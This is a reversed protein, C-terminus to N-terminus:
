LPRGFHWQPVRPDCLQFGHLKEEGLWNHQMEPYHKNNKKPKIMMMLRKLYMKLSQSTEKLREPVVTNASRFLINSDILWSSFAGNREARDFSIWTRGSKWPFLYVPGRNEHQQNGIETTCKLIYVMLNPLQSLDGTASGLAFPTTLPRVSSM